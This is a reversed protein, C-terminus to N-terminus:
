VFILKTLMQMMQIALLERIIELPNSINSSVEKFISFDSVVPTYKGTM